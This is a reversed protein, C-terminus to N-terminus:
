AKKLKETLIDALFEQHLSEIQQVHDSEALSQLDESTSFADLYQEILEGLAHLAIDVTDDDVSRVLARAIKKTLVAPATLPTPM